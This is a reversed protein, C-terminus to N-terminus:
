NLKIGMGYIQLWCGLIQMGACEVFVRATQSCCALSLYCNSFFTTIFLVSIILTVQVPFM